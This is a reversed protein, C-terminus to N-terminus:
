SLDTAEDGNRLTFDNYAFSTPIELMFNGDKDLAAKRSETDYSYISWWSVEVTDSLRNIITGRLPAAQASAAICLAALATLFKM